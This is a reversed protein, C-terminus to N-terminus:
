PEYYILRDDAFHYYLMRLQETDFLYLGCDKESHQSDEHAHM